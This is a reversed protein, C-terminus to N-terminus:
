QVRTIGKSWFRYTQDGKFSLVSRAGYGRVWSRVTITKWRGSNYGGGNNNNYLWNPTNFFCVEPMIADYIEKPAGNQGHHAM